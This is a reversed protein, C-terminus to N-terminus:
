INTIYAGCFVAHKEGLKLRRKTNTKNNLRTWTFCVTKTNEERAIKNAQIPYM